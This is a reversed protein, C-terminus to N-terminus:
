RLSYLKLGVAVFWGAFLMQCILTWMPGIAHPYAGVVDFGGTVFGLYALRKNSNHDNSNNYRHHDEDNSRENTRLLIALSLAVTAIGMLISVAHMGGYFIAVALQAMEPTHISRLGYAPYVLRGHVVDLVILLPVVVTALIGCGTVTAAAMVAATANNVGKNDTPDTHVVAIAADAAAVLGSHYLVFVAPVLSVTAAFHIENAFAHLLWQSAIWSLIDGQGVETPLVPPPGAAFDLLGRILFLTGSLVFCAGGFKNNCPGRLDNGDSKNRATAAELATLQQQQPPPQNRITRATSSRLSKMTYNKTPM